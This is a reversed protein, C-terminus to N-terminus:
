FRDSQLCGFITDCFLGPSQLVREPHGHGGSRWLRDASQDRLGDRRHLLMYETRTDPVGPGPRSLPSPLARQLVQMADRVM